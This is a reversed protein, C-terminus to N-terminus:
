PSRSHQRYPSVPVLAQRKGSLRLFAKRQRIYERAEETLDRSRKPKFYVRRRRSYGISSPRDQTNTLLLPSAQYDPSLASYDKATNRRYNHLHKGEGAIRVPQYDNFIDTFKVESGGKAPSKDATAPGSKEYAIGLLRDLASVSHKERKECLVKKSDATGIERRGATRSDRKVSVSRKHFDHERSRSQKFLPFYSVTADQPSPFDECQTGQERSLNEDAKPSLLHTQHPTFSVDTAFSVTLDASVCASRNGRM